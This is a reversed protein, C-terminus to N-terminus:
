SGAKEEAAAVAVRESELLRNVAPLPNEFPGLPQCSDYVLKVCEAGQAPFVMSASATATNRVCRSRWWFPMGSDAACDASAAARVESCALAGCVRLDLGFVSADLAHVLEHTLLTRLVGRSRVRDAIVHLLGRTGGDELEFYGAGSLVGSKGLNDIPAFDSSSTSADRCLIHLAPRTPQLVPDVSKAPQPVTQDAPPSELTAATISFAHAASITPLLSLAEALCETPTM